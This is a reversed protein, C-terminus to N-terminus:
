EQRIELTMNVFPIQFRMAAKNTIQQLYLHQHLCTKVHKSDSSSRKWLLILEHEENMKLKARENETPSNYPKRIHM